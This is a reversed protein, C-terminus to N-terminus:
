DLFMGQETKADDKRLDTLTISIKDKLKQVPTQLSKEKVNELNVEVTKEIPVGEKDKINVSIVNLVPTKKNDTQPERKAIVSHTSIDM